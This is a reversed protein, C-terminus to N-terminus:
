NGKVKSLFQSYTLNGLESIISTIHNRKILEFAPNKIKIKRETDWVEDFDRQEIKVNSPFYKWSDAVIYFPIKNSKAIQAFMGSGVKNIVGKKLIADAGLLVIDTKKTKQSKTLAISAASDVFMTVKIRAKKLEKATKRGQYLPRTETNYVEFKKGKKKTYILANVVSSSHCHTFVVSNNKILKFVQKNIKDQNEDLRQNLQKTSLKDANKLINALMPETSRLSLIKQKSRETPVLNYARFGAKAVNRAGQIKISKINKCIQNFKSKKNEM